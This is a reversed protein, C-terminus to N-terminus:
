QGLRNTPKPSCVFIYEVALSRSLLPINAELPLQIRKLWERETESRHWNHSTPFSREVDFFSQLDEKLDEISQINNYGSNDCFARHGFNVYTVILKGGIRLIHQIEAFKQRQLDGLYELVGQMVVIDFSRGVFKIENQTIDLELLNPAPDHIAIDIGFYAINKQLLRALTATGCGIDLLDIHSRRAIANAIRAVKELRFHPECFRLNEELWYHKNKFTSTKTWM